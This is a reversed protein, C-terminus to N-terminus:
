DDRWDVPPHNRYAFLYAAIALSWMGAASFFAAWSSQALFGLICLVLSSAASFGLLRRSLALGNLAEYRRDAEIWELSGNLRAIGWAVCPSIAAGSATWAACAFLDM